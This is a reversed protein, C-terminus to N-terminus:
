KFRWWCPHTSIQIKNDLKKADDIAKLPNDHKPLSLFDPHWEDFETIRWRSGTDGIYHNFVFYTEYNLKYKHMNVKRVKNSQESWDRYKPKCIDFIEYNIYGKLRCDRDGHSATGYIRIGNGRLHKLEDNLILGPRKRTKISQTLTNNHLGIEHGLSQIQKFTDISGPKNYYPATHLVYYSGRIGNDHEIIAMSLAHDLDHDVDHRLQYRHKDHECVPGIDLSALGSVFDAYECKYLAKDPYFGM